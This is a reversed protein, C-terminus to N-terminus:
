SEQAQADASRAREVCWVLWGFSVLAVVLALANLDKKLATDYLGHLVMPVAVLFIVRPIYEYWDIDDQILTRYKSIFLAAATSWVAHLAVCSVFRVLYISGTAIGNYQDASYMIGEVVGFGVGSAFGWSRAERWGANGYTRYYWILPLAKCVEECLGVGFTFGLFSPVFGMSQDIAARYSFGIAWAIWFLVLVIINRSVLFRGHAWEALVQALLLLVIGITGTFLGTLLLHQLRGTGPSFLLPVLAFFAAAALLAYLFHVMTRRPLHAGEVRGGPLAGVLTMLDAEGKRIEELAADIRPQAEAPANEMTRELREMRDMRDEAGGLLSFALPILALLLALYAWERWSQEPKDELIHRYRDEPAPSPRTQRRAPRRPPEAPGTPEAPGPVPRRRPKEPAPQEQVRYTEAEEAPPPPPPNPELDDGFVADAVPVVLVTGCAPCRARKGALEDKVRFRKGCSCDFSIPM